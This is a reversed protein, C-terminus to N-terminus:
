GARAGRRNDGFQLLEQIRAVAVEARPSNWGTLRSLAMRTTLRRGANNCAGHDTDLLEGIGVGRAAADIYGAFYQSLHRSFRRRTRMRIRTKTAAFVSQDEFDSNWRNRAHM